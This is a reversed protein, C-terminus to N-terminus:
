EAIVRLAIPQRIWRGEFTVDLAHQVIFARTCEDLAEKDRPESEILEGFRVRVLRGERIVVHRQAVGHGPFGLQEKDALQSLKAQIAKAVRRGNETLTEVWGPDIWNTAVNSAFGHILLIPDGEGEDWYAIRVGDSQFSPM